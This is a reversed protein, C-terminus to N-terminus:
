RDDRWLRLKVSLTFIVSAHLQSVRSETIKLLEAIQKMTLHQKYYLLIIQRRRVDLEQIAESLKDILEAQELQKDPAITDADELFNVVGSQEETFGDLSIFHQARASEFLEYVEDVTIGLKEALEEDTPAIGKQETIKRCLKYANRVQKNLNAPLLSLSRLEDLIAGKIRIYAYTKFKTQRSPDFDRAAKVLGVAGASVLDEFSLPLKLYTAVRRAIKHVMPLFQVIKEEDLWSSGSASGKQGSYTRLAVAKLHETNNKDLQQVSSTECFGVSVGSQPLCEPNEKSKVAV